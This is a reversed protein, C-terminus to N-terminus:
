RITSIPAYLVADKEYFWIVAGARVGKVGIKDCLKEYQKLNSFPFTNGKISKCELYYIHPFVYGIFDCINSIGYYGNTPDYM